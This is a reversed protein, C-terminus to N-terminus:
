RALARSSLLAASGGVAGLAGVGFAGANGLGVIVATRGPTPSLAIRGADIALSAGLLAGGGVRLVTGGLNAGVNSVNASGISGPRPGVGPRFFSITDRVMIPTRARADLKRATRGKEDFPDLAAVQSALDARVGGAQFAQLAGFEVTGQGAAL